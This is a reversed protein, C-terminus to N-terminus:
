AGHYRGRVSGRCYALNHCTRCGFREARRLLYLTRVRRVCVDASSAGPCVFWWRWSGFHQPTVQLGIEYNVFEDRGPLRYALHIRAAFLDLSNVAFSVTEGTATRATRWETDAVGARLVGRRTWHGADIRVCDTVLTKPDYARWRGSGQGGLDGGSKTSDDSQLQMIGSM